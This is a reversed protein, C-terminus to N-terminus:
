SPTVAIRRPSHPMPVLPALCEAGLVDRARAQHTTTPIATTTSPPTVAHVTV